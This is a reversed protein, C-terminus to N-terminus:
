KDTSKFWQNEVQVQQLDGTRRYLQMLRFHISRSSMHTKEASALFRIAEQPNNLNEAAESIDLTAWLPPNNQKMRPSLFSHLNNWQGLQVLSESVRAACREDQPDHALQERFAALAEEWMRHKRYLMGLNYRLEPLEPHTLLLREYGKIAEDEHEQDALMDLRLQDLHISNPYSQICTNVQNISEESGLVSLLYLLATDDPHHRWLRVADQFSLDPRFYPSIRAADAFAGREDVAAGDRANRIAQVFIASDRAAALRGFFFRASLLYAKSLQILALDKPFSSASLLSSYVETAEIPEDLDLYCPAVLALILPDSADENLIRLLMPRADELDRSKCREEALLAYTRPLRKLQLAQEFLQIAETSRGQMQIAVGLNTLLEPSRPHQILISKYLAEASKYDRRELASKAADSSLTSQALVASAGLSMLQILCIPLHRRTRIAHRMAAIM